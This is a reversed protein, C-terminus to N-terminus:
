YSFMHCMNEVNSTDFNSIDLNKIKTNNFMGGMYKVNSTNFGSVDISTLQSCNSFMWGMSTVNATNFHSVDLYTLKECCYFMDYMNTVKSTDLGSLDLTTLERCNSFMSQVNTVEKFTCGSFDINVLKSMGTFLHNLEGSITCDNFIIYEAELPFCCENYPANQRTGEGTVTITKTSVDYTWSIANNTANVYGNTAVDGQLVADVEDETITENGAIISTKGFVELEYQRKAELMINYQEEEHLADASVEANQQPEVVQQVENEAAYVQTTSFVSTLVMGATIVLVQMRKRLKNNM